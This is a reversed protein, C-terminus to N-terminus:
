HITPQYDAGFLHTHADVEKKIALYFSAAVVSPPVQGSHMTPQYDAGIAHGVPVAPHRPKFDHESHYWYPHVYVITDGCMRCKDLDGVAPIPLISQIEQETLRLHRYEDVVKPDAIDVILRIAMAAVQCAEKAVAGYDRERKWVEAKLEDLEELLVAYGEHASAFVGYISQSREVEDSVMRLAELLQPSRPM